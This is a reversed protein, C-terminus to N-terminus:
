LQYKPFTATFRKLLIKFIDKQTIQKMFKMGKFNPTELKAENQKTQTDTCTTPIFLGHWIGGMRYRSVLQSQEPHFQATNSHWHSM